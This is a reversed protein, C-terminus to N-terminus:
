AKSLSCVWNRRRLIVVLHVAAQMGLQALTLACITLTQLFLTLLYNIAKTGKSLGFLICLYIDLIELLSQAKFITNFNSGPLTFTYVDKEIETNM